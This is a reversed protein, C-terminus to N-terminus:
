TASFIIVVVSIRILIESPKFVLVLVFGFIFFFSVCVLKNYEISLRNKSLQFSRWNTTDRATAALPRHQISTIRYYYYIDRLRHWMVYEILSLVVSLLMGFNIWKVIFEYFNNGYRYCRESTPVLLIIIRDYIRSHEASCVADYISSWYM